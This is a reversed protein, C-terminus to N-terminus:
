AAVQASAEPHACEIPASTEVPETEQDALLEELRDTLAILATGAARIQQLLDPEVVQALGRQQEPTLDDMAIEAARRADNALACHDVGM